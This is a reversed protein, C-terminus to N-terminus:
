SVQFISKLYSANASFNEKVSKGKVRSRQLVLWGKWGIEDLAAKAKPMDIQGGQGLWTGDKETCYIQCIRDAGLDRIQQYIDQQIKLQEGFDFYIRVAPSGVDDLFKKFGDTDLAVEIGLVVDAKEALPAATKLHAITKDREASDTRIDSKVGMPLMGTKVGMMQMMDIWSKTFEDCKPHDAWSQGYFASMALSCIEVGLQSSKALYQQRTEPKALEDKMEARDGLSGMDVEVGDLGCDKALQIAGLKQRKLLMWDSAAIKYRQTSFQTTAAPETTAAFGRRVIAATAGIAAAALFERRTIEM